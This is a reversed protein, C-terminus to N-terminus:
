ATLEKIMESIIESAAAKTLGTTLYEDPEYGIDACLKRILSAQLPTAFM